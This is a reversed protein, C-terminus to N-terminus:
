LEINYIEICRQITLYLESETPRYSTTVNNKVKETSNFTITYYQDSDYM